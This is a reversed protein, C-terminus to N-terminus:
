QKVEVGCSKALALAHDNKVIAMAARNSPYEKNWLAYEGLQENSNEMAEVAAKLATHAQDRQHKLNFVHEWITHPKASDYNDIGLAQWVKSVILKEDTYKTRWDQEDNMTEGLWNHMDSRDQEMTKLAANAQFLRAESETLKQAYDNRGYKGHELLHLSNKCEALEGEMAKHRALFDAGATASLAQDCGITKWVPHKRYFTSLTDLCSRLEAASAELEEIRAMAEALSDSKARFKASLSERFDNVKKVEAELEEIRRRLEPVTDTQETNM